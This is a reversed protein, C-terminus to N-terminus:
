PSKLHVAPCHQAAAHFLLELYRELLSLPVPDLTYVEFPLTGVQLQPLGLATVSGVRSVKPECKMYIYLIYNVYYNSRIIFRGPSFNYVLFVEEIYINFKNRSFTM